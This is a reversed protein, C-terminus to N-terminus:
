AARRAHRAALAGLALLGIAYMGLGGRGAFLDAFVALGALGCAAVAAVTGAVGRRLYDKIAPTLRWTLGAALMVGSLLATSLVLFGFDDDPSIGRRLQVSRLAVLGGTIVAGGVGAGAGISALALIIPDSAAM